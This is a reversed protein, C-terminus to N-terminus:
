RTPFRGLILGLLSLGNAHAAKKAWCAVRLDRKFLSVSLERRPPLLHSLECDHWRPILPYM